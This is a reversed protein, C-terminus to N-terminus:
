GKGRAEMAARAGSSTIEVRGERMEKGLFEMAMQGDSYSHQYKVVHKEPPEPKLELDFGVQYSVSIGNAIPDLTM